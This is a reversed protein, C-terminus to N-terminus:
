SDGPARAAAAAEAARVATIHERIFREQFAADAGRGAGFLEGLTTRPGYVAALTCALILPGAFKGVAWASANVTPRDDGPATSLRRAARRLAQM